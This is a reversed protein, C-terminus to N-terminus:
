AAAYRWARAPEFGPKHCINQIDFWIPLLYRVYFARTSTAELDLVGFDRIEVRPDRARLAECQALKAEVAAADDLHLGLHDEAAPPAPQDHEAIFIFQSAEEDTTFVLSSDELGPFVSRRFGLVQLFFEDMAATNAAVFGRPVTVEIHNFRIV